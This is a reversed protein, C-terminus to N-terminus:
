FIRKEGSAEGSEVLFVFHAEPVVPWGCGGRVSHHTWYVIRNVFM